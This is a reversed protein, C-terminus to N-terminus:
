QWPQLECYILVLAIDHFVLLLAILLVATNKCVTNKETACSIVICYHAVNHMVTGMHVAICAAGDDDSLPRTM